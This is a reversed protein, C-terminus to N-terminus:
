ERPPWSMKWDNGILRFVVSAPPIGPAFQLKFQMSGDALPQRDVVGLGILAETGDFVEEASRVGTTRTIQAAAEPTLTDLFNKLNRNQMAWLFTQLTAEPTQYGAMRAQSKRIYGNPFATNNTRNAALRQKLHANEVPMLSLERKRRNLRNVESRLQLLETSPEPESAQGPENAPAAPEPEDPKHGLLRQQELKLSSLHSEQIFVCTLLALSMLILVTLIVTGSKM